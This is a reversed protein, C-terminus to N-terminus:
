DAVSAAWTISYRSQIRYLDGYSGYLLSARQMWVETDLEVTMSVIVQELELLIAEVEFYEYSYGFLGSPM